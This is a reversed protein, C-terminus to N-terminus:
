SRTVATHSVSHSQEEPWRAYGTDRLPISAQRDFSQDDALVLVIWAAIVIAWTKPDYAKGPM